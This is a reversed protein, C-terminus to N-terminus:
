VCGEFAGAAKALLPALKQDFKGKAFFLQIMLPIAVVALRLLIKRRSDDSVGSLALFGRVLVFDGRAQMAAVLDSKSRKPNPWESRPKLMVFTDAVSPPMPDNAVEATGLKGVVKDVEPFAKLAEEVEAQMKLAQSLSTGPIRLAHM